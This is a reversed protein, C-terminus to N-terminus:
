EGAEAGLIDVGDVEAGGAVGVEEEGVAFLAGGGAAKHGYDGEAGLVREMSWNTAEHDPVRKRGMKTRSLNKSQTYLLVYTVIHMTGLLAPLRSANKSESSKCKRELEKAQWEQLFEPM